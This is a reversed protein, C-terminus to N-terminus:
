EFDGDDVFDPVDRDLDDTGYAYDDDDFDGDGVMRRAEELSYGEAILERMLDDDEEDFTYDPEVDALPADDTEVENHNPSSMDTNDGM